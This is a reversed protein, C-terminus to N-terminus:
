SDRPKEATRGRLMHKVPRHEGKPKADFGFSARTVAPALKMKRRTGWDCISRRLRSMMSDSCVPRPRSPHGRSLPEESASRADQPAPLVITVDLAHRHRPGSDLDIM